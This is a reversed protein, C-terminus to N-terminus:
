EGMTKLHKSIGRLLGECERMEAEGEKMAEDRAQEM